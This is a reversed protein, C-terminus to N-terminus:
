IACLALLPFFLYFQEEVGLSWTHLLPNSANDLNFYGIKDTAFRWNSFSFLASIASVQTRRQELHWSEFLLSLGLVAALMTALAPVIRFFRRVWFSKLSFTGTENISRIILGTIVFGSIVFFVDVGIFGRSVVNTAHFLVVLM